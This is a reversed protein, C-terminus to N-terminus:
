DAVGRAAGPHQVAGTAYTGYLPDLADTDGAMLRRVADLDDLAIV